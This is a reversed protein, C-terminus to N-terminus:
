DRSSCVPYPHARARPSLELVMEPTRPAVALRALADRWRDWRHRAAGRSSRKLTGTHSSSRTEDPTDDGALLLLHRDRHTVTARQTTAEMTEMKTPLKQSSIESCSEGSMLAKVFPRQMLHVVLLRLQKVFRRTFSPSSKVPFGIFSGNSAARTPVLLGWLSEAICSTKYRLSYYWYLFGQM